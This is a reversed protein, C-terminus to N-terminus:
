EWGAFKKMGNEGPVFFRVEDPLVPSRPDDVQMGLRRDEILEYCMSRIHHPARLGMKRAIYGASVWVYGDEHAHRIVEIILAKRDERPMNRRM